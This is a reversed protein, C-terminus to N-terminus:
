EKEIEKAIEKVKVSAEQIQNRLDQATKKKLENCDEFHKKSRLISQLFEQGEQFKGARSKKIEKLKEEAIKVKEAMEELGVREKLKLKQLEKKVNTLNEDLNEEEKASEVKLKSIQEDMNSVQQTKEIKVKKMKENKLCIEEM